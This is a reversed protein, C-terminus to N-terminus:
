AHVIEGKHPLMTAIMVAKANSDQQDIQSKWAANEGLFLNRERRDQFEYGFLKTNWGGNPLLVRAAVLRAATM